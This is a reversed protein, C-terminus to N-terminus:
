KSHADGDGARGGFFHVMRSGCPFMRKVFTCDKWPVCRRIVGSLVGGSAAVDNRTSTGLKECPVVPQRVSACLFIQLVFSEM